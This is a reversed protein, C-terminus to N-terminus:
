AGKPPVTTIKLKTTLPDYATGTRALKNWGVDVGKLITLITKYLIYMRIPGYAFRGFLVAWIYSYREKALTLGIAAIISQVTLSLAFFLLIVQYNGSLISDITVAIVLPWFLIPVAISIVASPMVYMGLWGYNKNLMMSRHKWLSQISGFTWRFRQKTLSLLSQPAETYSIAENDQLIKYRGTKQIKLALDCDEALTSSSFGGVEVLVSRRWAGCAGPVITIAGLLAQANREISIGTIYELAQWRTIMSNPNGVKVGGAVAGVADDEFHRILKAITQPPFLTDADMCIVIDSESRLIANNLAASKGSNTQHLATVRKYRKALSRAIQWTNDTSGDDVIVIKIKRYHSRILSRVSKSIVGEENYAPMIVTVNPSYRKSRPKYKMKVKQCIALLINLLSIIVLSGISFVFLWTVLRIPWVFTARAAFLSANDALNTHAVENSSAQPYRDNLTSFTYGKSKALRILQEVYAITRSRDGGSDHLLIVSNSGDFTPYTPKRGSPFQWDVSDFDYSTVTYGAKQATLIGKLSNRFSQDTNGVYPPRFFAADKNTTAAILRQTQNVEQEGRFNDVSDFDIHTFSHNGVDHGEATLRKMIEPYKVANSGTVFFTSTVSERSLLDLLQPTYTADPGDDFTLTIRKENGGGYRQIAYKDGNIFRTEQDNFKHLAKNSFPDTAYTGDLTKNIGVLRVLPGTGVVATNKAALFNILQNVSPKKDHTASINYAVKPSSNISLVPPQRPSLMQPILWYAGICIIAVFFIIINETIRWRKGSLDSFIPPEKKHM